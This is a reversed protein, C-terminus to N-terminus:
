AGRRKCLKMWLLGHKTFARGDYVMVPGVWLTGPWGSREHAVMCSPHMCALRELTEAMPDSRRPM